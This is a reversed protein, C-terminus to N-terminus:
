MVGPRFIFPFTFMRERRHEAELTLRRGQLLDALTIIGVPEGTERDVVAMQTLGAHAMRYVVSKLTEDAFATTTSRLIIDPALLEPGGQMVERVFV